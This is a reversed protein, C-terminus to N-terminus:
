KTTCLFFFQPTESYFTVWEKGQYYLLTIIGFFLPTALLHVKSRSMLGPRIPAIRNMSSRTLTM